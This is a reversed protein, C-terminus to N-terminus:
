TAFSIASAWCVWSRLVLFVSRMLVTRVCACVDTCVSVRPIGGEKSVSRVEESLLSSSLNDRTASPRSNAVNQCCHGCLTPFRAASFDNRAARFRAVKSIM